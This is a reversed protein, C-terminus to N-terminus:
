LVLALVLVWCFWVWVLCRTEMRLEKQLIKKKKMVRGAVESEKNPKEPVRDQIPQHLHISFNGQLYHSLGTLDLILKLLQSKVQHKSVPFISSRQSSGQNASENSIPVDEPIAWELNELTNIWCYLIKFSIQSM